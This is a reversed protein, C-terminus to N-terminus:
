LVESRVSFYSNIMFGIEYQKYQKVRMKEYEDLHPFSTVRIRFQTISEQM